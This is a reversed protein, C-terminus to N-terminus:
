NMIAPRRSARMLSAQPPGGLVYNGLSMAGRAMLKSATNSWGPAASDLYQLAKKYLPESYLMTAAPEVYKQSIKPRWEINQFTEFILQNAPVGIWAFGICTPSDAKAAESISTASIGAGLSTLAFAADEKFKESEDTPRYNVEMVDLSVRQSSSSRDFLGSVTPLGDVLLSLPVNGLMAVRGKCSSTDGIYTMKVCASLTRFDQCTASNIFSAAGANNAFGATLSASGMPNAVTNNISTSASGNVFYICNFKQSAFNDGSYSPCWLFFGNTEPESPTLTSKFRSLIGSSSGYLGEVLESHCPDSIMRAIKVLRQNTGSRPKAKGTGKKPRKQGKSKSNKNKNQACQKNISSGREVFRGIPTKCTLRNIITAVCDHMLTFVGAVRRTQTERMVSVQYYVSGYNAVLRDRVQGTDSLWVAGNWGVHVLLAWFPGCLSHLLFLTLHILVPNLSQKCVAEILGLLISVLLPFFSRAVEEVIPSLVVNACLETLRPTSLARRTPSSRKHTIEINGDDGTQHDDLDCDVKFGRLFRIDSFVIPFDKASLPQRTFVNYTCCMELSDIDELSFGYEDSFFDYASPCCDDIDTSTTKWPEHDIIPNLDREVGIRVIARLLCGLVPVHNGIPLMSLATGYLLRMHHIRPHRHLNLGLKSIIRFPKLGWKWGGDPLPYFKGSCYGLKSIHSIRKVKAKMGFTAYIEIIRKTAIDSNTGYFNDDGKAVALVDFGFLYFLIMLNILSNFCSTWMDGSRRGHKTKYGTGFKGSGSVDRWHRKIERWRPPLCPLCNEIFWIEFILWGPALSGDWNSVDIEYVYKFKSFMTVAIDGLQRADIGADYILHCNSQNFVTGLWKSVSYFFPGVINQYELTRGQIIRPKFNDATKGLYAEMKVFIDVMYCSKVELVDPTNILMNARRTKLHSAWEDYSVMKWEGKNLFQSCFFTARELVNKLADECFERAFFFRIVLGNYQDHHCGNPIVMTAGAIWTGFSDYAQKMKCPLDQAGAKLTFKWNTLLEPLKIGKSCTSLVNIISGYNAHLKEDRLEKLILKVKDNMDPKFFVVWVLYVVLAVVTEVFIVNDFDPHSYDTVMRWVHFPGYSMLYCLFIFTQIYFMFITYFKWSSWYDGEMWFSLAADVDAPTANIKSGYRYAKASIIKPVIGMRKKHYLSVEEAFENSDLWESIEIEVGIWPACYKSLHNIAKPILHKKDIDTKGLADHLLPRCSKQVYEKKGWTRPLPILGEGNVKRFVGKGELNDAHQAIQYVRHGAEKDDVSVSNADVFAHKVTHLWWPHVVTLKEDEKEKEVDKQIQKDAERNDVIKLSKQHKTEVKKARRREEEREKYLKASDEQTFVRATKLFGSSVSSSSSSSSSKVSRPPSCNDKTEYETRKSPGVRNATPLGEKTIRTTSNATAM